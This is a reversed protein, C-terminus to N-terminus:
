LLILLWPWTTFTLSAPYRPLNLPLTLSFAASSPTKRAVVATIVAINTMITVIVLTFLIIMRIMMM